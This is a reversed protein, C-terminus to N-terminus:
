TRGSTTARARSALSALIISPVNHPSTIREAAGLDIAVKPMGFVVSSARNQAVTLAGAQRMRLLGEAGDAGMGTLLVGVARPGVYRTVSNFLVDVAPCHRNVPQHDGYAIRWRGDGTPRIEMQTGGRALFAHGPLLLDGDEAEKVALPSLQNLRDAFSKTFGEPMHQVMVTPPFDSPVRTLVNKIAETGGTSAGIAILYHAPDLNVSKFSAPKRYLNSPIRPRSPM